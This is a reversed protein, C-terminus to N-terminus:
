RTVGGAQAISRMASMTTDVGALFALMTAAFLAPMELPFNHGAGPLMVLRSHAIGRALIM